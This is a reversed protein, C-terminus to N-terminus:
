SGGVSTGVEGDMAAIDIAAPATNIEAGFLSFKKRKQAFQSRFINSYFDEIILSQCRFWM